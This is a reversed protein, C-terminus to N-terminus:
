GTLDPSEAGQRGHADRHRRQDARDVMLAMGGILIALFLISIVLTKTKM